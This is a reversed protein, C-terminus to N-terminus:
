TKENSDGNKRSVVSLNTIFLNKYINHIDTTAISFLPQDIEALIM